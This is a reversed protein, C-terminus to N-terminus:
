AGIGGVCQEGPHVIAVLVVFPLWVLVLSAPIPVAEAPRVLQLGTIDEHQIRAVITAYYPMTVTTKAGTLAVRARSNSTKSNDTVILSSKLIHRYM